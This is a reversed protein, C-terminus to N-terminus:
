TGATATPGEDADRVNWKQDGRTTVRSERTDATAELELEVGLGFHDSAFPRRRSSGTSAVLPQEFLLRADGRQRWRHTLGPGTVVYDLRSPRAAPDMSHLLDNTRPDFTMLQSRAAHDHLGRREFWPALSAAYEDSAAEINLDGCLVTPVEDDLASILQGLQAARVTRCREPSDIPDDAQMHSNVIRVPGVGAIEWTANIFGKSAYADMGAAPRDFAEFRVRAPRVRSLIALGGGLPSFASPDPASRDCWFHMGMAAATERLVDTAYATFTEQVCVVDFRALTAQVTPHALRAHSRPRDLLLGPLDTVTGFCNWTAVRLGLTHRPANARASTRPSPRRRMMSLTNAAVCAGPLRGRRLERGREACRRLVGGGMPLAARGTRAIRM